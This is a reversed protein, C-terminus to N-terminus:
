SRRQRLHLNFAAVALLAIIIALLARNSAAPAPAAVLACFGEVCAAGDVCQATDACPGGVPVPTPTISPTATPTGTNTPSPTSTPTMTPLTLEGVCLGNGNCLSDTGPIGDDCETGPPLPFSNDPGPPPGGGSLIAGIAPGEESRRDSCENTAEDCDGGLCSSCQRPTEGVCVGSQCTGSGETCFLRDTCPSDDAELQCTSDCCDGDYMNGDDCTEGGDLVGNGCGDECVNACQDEGQSPPGCGFCEDREADWFCSAALPPFDENGLIHWADECEAITNLDRCQQVQTRDPDGACAVPACDNVLCTDDAGGRRGCALCDADAADWDCAIATGGAEVYYADECTAEDSDDFSRCPRQGDGGLGALTTRGACAAQTACVNEPSRPARNTGRCTSGDWSCAIPQEERNVYYATECTTEDDFMRCAGGNNGTGGRDGKGILTRGACVPPASTADCANLSEWMTTGTCQEAGASWTCATPLLLQMSLYFADECESQSTGSLQRCTDDGNSGAGLFTSRGTCTTAPTPSNLCANNEDFDEASGRCDEGDWWCAVPTLAGDDIYYANECDTQSGGEDDDFQRCPASSNSGFGLRNTRAQDFYCPVEIPCDNEQSFSSNSGRCDAGDWWCAVAKGTNAVEYYANECTPEDVGDFQRCPMMSTNGFGLLNTRDGCTIDASPAPPDEYICENRTGADGIAAECESGDWWCAVAVPAGEVDAYYADECAAQDGGNASDFVQCPNDANFGLFTTRDMDFTCPIQRPDCDNNASFQRGSGRCLSGSGDWWCAVPAHNLVDQYFADECTAADTGDFVHCAGGDEGRNNRAFGLATQRTPDATCTATPETPEHLCANLLENRGLSGLCLDGPAWWCAVPGGEDEDEYYSDECDTQNGDHQRCTEQGDGGLGLFTRDPERTCVADVDCANEFSYSNSSGRCTTADSWCAVGQGTDQNVYFSTECTTGDGDFQRCAGGDQGTNQNNSGFGVVNTRTPDGACSPEICPNEECDDNRGGCAGCENGDEWICAVAIGNDQNQYFANECTAEDTGDLTRCPRDNNDGFGILNTRGDACVASPPIPEIQCANQARFDDASGRCEDGDWWCAIGVGDETDEYFANECTAEDTEDLQRCPRTNNNGFGIVMRDPERPCTAAPTPPPITTLCSNWAFFDDFGSGRCEDGDWWCAVGLGTDEDEYFADECTTQDTGDLQRCRQSNNGGTGLLHTREPDLTCVADPVDATPDCVNFPCVNGDDGCGRCSGTTSQWFCAVADGFVADDDDDQHYYANECTAQDTADLNRCREAGDGGVGLLATRQPDGLCATTAVGNDRGNCTNTPCVLNRGGCGVCTGEVYFCSSAVPIGGDDGGEDGSLYYALECADQDGNFQKCPADNVGAFIVRTPDDTCPPPIFAAGSDALLAFVVAFAFVLRRM